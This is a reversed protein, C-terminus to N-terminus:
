LPALLRQDGISRKFNRKSQKVTKLRSFVPISFVPISFVPRSFDRAGNLMDTSIFSLAM